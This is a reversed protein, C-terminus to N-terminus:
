SNCCGAALRGWTLPSWDLAYGEDNFKFAALKSGGFSKKEKKNDVMELAEMAKSLNYIGVENEDNWTAVIGSGHMSRIRNVCGKHPITEFRMEPLKEEKEEEEEDSQSEVDDKLTKAMDSWKMVYIKNENKKLAQSGGCFYVTYPFKDNKHITQGFKDQAEFKPDIAMVNAPFWSRDAGQREKLLVDISLCPWEVKARHLMQYASNDFVLEEDEKLPEEAENWVQQKM